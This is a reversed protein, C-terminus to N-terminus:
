PPAPPCSPSIPLALRVSLPSSPLSLRLLSSFSLFVSVSLSLLSSFVSAVVTPFILFHCSIPLQSCPASQSGCLRGAVTGMGGPSPRQGRSWVGPQSVVVPVNQPCSPCRWSASTGLRLSFSCPFSPCRLSMGPDGLIGSAGVAGPWSAQLGAHEWISVRGLGLSLGAREAEEVEM